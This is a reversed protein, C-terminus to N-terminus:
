FKAQLSMGRIQGKVYLVTITLLDLVEPTVYNFHLTEIHKNFGKILMMSNFKQKNKYSEFAAPAVTRRTVAPYSAVANKLSAADALPYAIKLIDHCITRQQNPTLPKVGKKLYAPDNLLQPLGLTKRTSELGVVNPLKKPDLVSTPTNAYNSLPSDVPSTWRGGGSQKTAQAKVEIEDAGYKLDYGTGAGVSIDKHFAAIAVEGPGAEGAYKGQLFPDTIMASFLATAVEGGRWWNSSVNRKGSNDFLKPADIYTTSGFGRLFQIKEALPFNLEVIIQGLRKIFKKADADKNFAMKAINNINSSRLMSIVKHLLEENGVRDVQAKTQAQLDSITDEYIKNENLNIQKQVEPHIKSRIYSRFVSRLDHEPGGVAIAGRFAKIMSPDPVAAYAAMQGKLDRGLLPSSLIKNIQRVSSNDPVAGEFMKINDQKKEKAKKILRPPAKTIKWAESLKASDINDLIALQEELSYKNFKSFTGEPRPPIPPTPQQLAVEAPPELIPEAKQVNHIANDVATVYEQNFKTNDHGATMIASYKTVLNTIKKLNLHYDDGSVVRFEILQNDLDNEDGRFNVTSFKGSEAVDELEKELAYLAHPNNVNKSLAYLAREVKKVKIPDEDGFQQLLYRDGLLLGMKLKDSIVTDRHWSMTVHLSTTNNTEVDNKKFFALLSHIEGLMTAPSEYIPSIIESPVGTSSEISPDDEIRWYNQDAEVSGQYYDGAKIDKVLSNATIWKSVDEAVARQAIDDDYNESGPLGHWIFEAEFSCQIPQNIADIAADPDDVNIEFIPNSGLKQKRVLKKMKKIQRGLQLHRHGKSVTSLKGRNGTIRKLSNSFVDEEMEVQPLLVNDNPELTYFEKTKQNQVVVGKNKNDSSPTIVKIVNGEKDPFEFDIELEKAKAITPKKEQAQSPAVADTPSQGPQLVPTAKVASASTAHTQQGVPTPPGPTLGYENLDIVRM